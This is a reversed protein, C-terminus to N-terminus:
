PDIRSIISSLLHDTDIRHKSFITNLEESTKDKNKDVEEKFSQIRSNYFEASDKIAKLTVYDNIRAYQSLLDIAQEKTTGEKDIENFIQYMTYITCEQADQDDEINIYPM